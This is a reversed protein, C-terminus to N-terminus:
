GAKAETTKPNERNRQLAANGEPTGVPFWCAYTHDPDGEVARLPPEEVHCQPQAYACRPAFPCGSGTNLLNPPRGPIVELKTHSPNSLVPISSMLAATYPMRPVAFLTRTPAKEVIRGAYMVAIDDTRSAVVGFDHTVLIMAMNREQQERKLLNLIQAQVTVDLSTTPEDAILLRPSCSLAIAITIRQRLGGSFQHPYEDVRREAEPIGVERMLRIAEARAEQKSMGLHHRLGQAIQRGVQMVPSLATMPNQFVISAEKGWVGRLEAQSAATLDKGDFTVLGDTVVNTDPQLRLLSRSLVSKGSGSEGVIGLTKGAALEFTVGNVARVAGRPTSFSVRFDNASLLTEAEPATTKSRNRAM